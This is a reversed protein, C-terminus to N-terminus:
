VRSACLPLCSAPQWAWVKLTFALLQAVRRPALGLAVDWNLWECFEAMALARIPASSPLLVIGARVPLHSLFLRGAWRQQPSLCIKFGLSVSLLSAEQLVCLLAQPQPPPLLRLLPHCCFGPDTSRVAPAPTQAVSIVALSPCDGPCIPSADSLCVRSSSPTNRSALELTRASCGWAQCVAPCRPTQTEQPCAPVPAFRPEASPPSCAPGAWRGVGGGALPM